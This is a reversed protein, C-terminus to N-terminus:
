KDLLRKFELVAPSSRRNHGVCVPQNTRRSTRVIQVMETPDPALPKETYVAKGSELAPIIFEGRFNHHTALICLDIDRAAVVKRWDTEARAAGYKDKCLEAAERNLDCTVVLEVRPNERCNPLHAGQALVGCGVVAVRHNKM